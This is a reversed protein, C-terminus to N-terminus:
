EETVGVASWDRLLGYFASCRVCRSKGVINITSILIKANKDESPHFERRDNDVIARLLRGAGLAVGGGGAM